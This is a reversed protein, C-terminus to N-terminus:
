HLRCTEIPMPGLIFRIPALFSAYLWCRIPCDGSGFGREVLDLVLILGFVSHTSGAVLPTAIIRIKPSTRHLDQITEVGSKGPMLIDTIVLDSPAARFLRVGEDGDAACVVRHGAAELVSSIMELFALNDDILLIKAM